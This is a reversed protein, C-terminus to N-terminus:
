GRARRWADSEVYVNDFREQSDLLERPRADGRHLRDLLRYYDARPVAPTFVFLVDADTDADAGAGPAAAFAHATLPPVVLVDGAHLTTVEEGVLVQLTGALVHLLEHSRTHLHPPAGDSGAGFTSRHCSLAGGTAGADALLTITGGPDGDLVEAHAARTLVAAPTTPISTM